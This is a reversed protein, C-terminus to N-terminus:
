AQLSNEIHQRYKVIPEANADEECERQCFVERTISLNRTTQDVHCVALLNCVTALVVPPVHGAEIKARFWTKVDMVGGGANGAVPLVFGTHKWAM